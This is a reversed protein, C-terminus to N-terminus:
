SHLCRFCFFCRYKDRVAMQSLQCFIKTEHTKIGEIKGLDLVIRQYIKSIFLFTGDQRAVPPKKLSFLCFTKQDCRVLRLFLQELDDFTKRQFFVAEREATADDAIRGQLAYVFLADKLPKRWLDNAVKRMELDAFLAVADVPMAVM